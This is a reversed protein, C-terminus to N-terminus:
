FVLRDFIVRIYIDAGRKYGVFVECFCISSAIYIYYEGSQLFLKSKLGGVGVTISFLLFLYSRSHCM